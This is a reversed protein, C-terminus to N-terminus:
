RAQPKQGKADTVAKVGIVSFPAVCASDGRMEAIIWNSLPEKKGWAPAFRRFGSPIAPTSHPGSLVVQLTM